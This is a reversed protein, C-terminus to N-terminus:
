RMGGWIRVTQDQGASLAFRGDRSFAVCWVQDRHGELKRLEKGSHADWLRLTGDQSGSLIRRGDPSFAVSNVYGEHGIFTLLEKGSDLDWLKLSKDTSGSLGRRGDPSFAVSLVTDNHGDLRRIETGSEVDWLRITRDLSGSLARKGDRSLAVHWVFHNHGPFSRIEKGTDANWLRLIRDDGGSLVHRGDQSFVASRVYDTHGSLRRFERASAVDWIRASNDFAGSLVRRGEPAFAVSWVRGNHGDLRRQEKGTKSDWLRISGDASGSVIRKGDPSFAASFVPGLHGECRRLEIAIDGVRYEAPLGDMISKLRAAIADTESPAAAALAQQYWFHARLLTQVHMADKYAAALAQWKAGVSSQLAPDKPDAMDLSAAAKLGTDNGKALLPLGLEWNGKILAHYKGMEANAEADSADKALRDAFPQWRAFHKQLTLVEDRRKRISSVQSINRLSKGANEATQILELSASFDDSALADDLLALASDIVAQHAEPAAAARSAISLAKLKMQFVEAAPVTYGEALEEIAQLATAGDGAKSALSLATQLLVFRGAPDDSTDKAERLFMAALGSRFQADKQAKALDSGYLENILTEARAVADKSPLPSKRIPQAPSNPVGLALAFLGAGLVAITQFRRPM